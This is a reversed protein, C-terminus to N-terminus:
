AISAKLQGESVGCVYKSAVGKGSGIRRLPGGIWAYEVESDKMQRQHDAIRM